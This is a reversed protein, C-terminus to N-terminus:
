KLDRNDDTRGAKSPLIEDRFQGLKIRVIAIASDVTTYIDFFKDKTLGDFFVGKYVELTRLRRVNDEFIFFVNKQASDFRHKFRVILNRKINSFSDVTILNQM